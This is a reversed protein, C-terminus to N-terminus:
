AAEGIGPADGFYRREIDAAPVPRSFFFGQGFVCGCGILFRRQEDTEVGEAIPELGLTRALQIVSSVLLGADEDDPLGMVFSRDIKLMSVWRRNLRGLASHGTGFDDIALKAGRERAQALVDELLRFSDEAAASETVEVVLSGPTLGHLETTALVHNMGTPQCYAPPLNISVYLGAVQSHWEAAQRCAEEIVWDSLPGILGIREALPIFEAPPVLGLEDDQWRVLAEVGVIVGTALEVLPQYHLVLGYGREIAKRLRGAKALQERPDLVAETYLSYGDRGARKADYMATDAHKLLTEADEGDVPHRGIGVSATVYIEVGALLFPEQLASRIRSAVEEDWRPSAPRPRSRRRTTATDTVLVLFEDGGQRAVVDTDRVTQRLRAAVARLLEDGAAHGFSDNVLKFNDLDVFLVSLGDGDQISTVAANLGKEFSVRNPLDTLPDNLALYALKEAEALRETELKRETVDAVVGDVLVRGGSLLKPRMRDWMWRVDGDLRVIRYEVEMSEGRMLAEASADYLESDDPHVAAEYVREPDAGAPVPGLISELGVFEHCVYSGDPFLDMEYVMISVTGTIRKLIDTAVLTQALAHEYTRSPDGSSQFRVDDAM